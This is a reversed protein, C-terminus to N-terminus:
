ITTKQLYEVARMVGELDDGLNGIGVNCHKCLWGRFTDTKHDHDFQAMDRGSHTLPKGCCACPTGIPPKNNKIHTGSAGPGWLKRAAKDRSSHKAAQCGKCAPWPYFVGFSNKRGGFEVEPYSKGCSTCKQGPYGQNPNLQLQSECITTSELELQQTNSPSNLIM